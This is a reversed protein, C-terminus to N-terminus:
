EPEIGAEKILSTWKLLESRVYADFEKPGTHFVEVGSGLLRDKVEPRSLMTQLERSLREAIPAPLGPPAFMGAWALLDFNPMVTEHLTPIDPLTASRERTLVALPRIKQVKLQPLATGFDPVMLPVHGAILDTMAAPNSRYPVRAIDIKSRQKFAEITIHGTSNGHAISIKGPNAKAYAVLEQMSKAPLNPNAAVLSPFSGIRAVPTFDKIPDYPVSKFLGPAASHTSNTTILLMHGDPAAKAVASAALMGGAGARNEVLFPQGLVEQLHAAISRATADTVSGAAFPTVITVPRTPYTQAGAHTALAQVIMLAALAAAHRRVVLRM